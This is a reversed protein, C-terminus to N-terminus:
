TVNLKYAVNTVFPSEKEKLAFREFRLLGTYKYLIVWRQLRVAGIGSANWVGVARGKM